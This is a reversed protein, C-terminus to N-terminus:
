LEDKALQISNPKAGGDADPYPVGDTMFVLVKKGNPLLPATPAFTELLPYQGSLVQYTPTENKPTAPDLRAHLATAQTADVYAIPVDLKTYPGAGNTQDLSDSFVTLGLGFSVDNQTALDDVFAEVAPVIAAWKHDGSMSGS